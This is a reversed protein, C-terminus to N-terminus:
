KEAKLREPVKKLIQEEKQRWAISISFAYIAYLIESKYFIWSFFNCSTIAKYISHFTKHEDGWVFLVLRSKSKGCSRAAVFDNVSKWRAKFYAEKPVVENGITALQLHKTAQKYTVKLLRSIFFWM